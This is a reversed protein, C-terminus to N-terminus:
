HLVSADSVLPGFVPDAALVDQPSEVYWECQEVYDLDDWARVCAAVGGLEAEESNRFAVFAALEGLTVATYVDRETAPLELYAPRAGKSQVYALQDRAVTFAVPGQAQAQQFRDELEDEFVRWPRRVSSPIAALASAEAHVQGGRVPPDSAPPLAVEKRQKGAIAILLAKRQKHLETCFEDVVANQVGQISIIAEDVKKLEGKIRQMDFDDVDIDATGPQSFRCGGVM